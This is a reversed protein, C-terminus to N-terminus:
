RAHEEELRAEVEAASLWPFDLRLPGHVGKRPCHHSAHSDCCRWRAWFLGGPQVLYKGGVNLPKEEPGAFVKVHPNRTTDGKRDHAFLRVGPAGCKM